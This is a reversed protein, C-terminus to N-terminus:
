RKGAGLADVGRHQLRKGVRPRLLLDHRLRALQTRHARVAPQRVESRESNRVHRGVPADLELTELVVHHAVSADSDELLVGGRPDSFVQELRQLRLTQLDRGDVVCAASEIGGARYPSRVLEDDGSVVAEDAGEGAREQARAAVSGASEGAGRGDGGDGGGGAESRGGGGQRVYRDAFSPHPNYGRVLQDFNFGPVGYPLFSLHDTGGKSAQRVSDADLSAVPALLQHWLGELENRGQLAQGTIAGTGNDLVLVAQISDADAAHAAAYAKSGLLGEEEGTFLIFRITRKPKVGSQAIVRATELVAMSGTGNDTTGTGLDWSDLHAGLIVVQGPKDSGKIEAVTNWQQVPSKGLRNEVKAEIRPAVGAHILRELLTYDEHSIVLNPLPSVRNPSGSMTMLGHEKAGDYLTGLAGAKKLIFPLDLQFQRRAAVAAPSTDATAMQRMQVLEQLHASDAATMPPGDPNWVPLSPRPLLWAGKLKDKYLALSDPTGLNVLVVPGSVAKGDTGATWAWSEGTMARDFPALLRMSVTGREWTVGFPYAELAATLGYARFREATWDNAKRVAASGTLRPGIVDSLHELNAMVESHDMAQAILAGAGSTDVSTQAALPSALLLFALFRM